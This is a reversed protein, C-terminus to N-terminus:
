FVSVMVKGASQQRRPRKSANEGGIRKQDITLLRPVWGACLIRLCLHTHLMNIDLFNAGGNQKKSFVFTTSLQALRSCYIEEEVIKYSVCRKWFLYMNTFKLIQKSMCNEFIRIEFFCFNHQTTSPSCLLDRKCWHDRLRMM